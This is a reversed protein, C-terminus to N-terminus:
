VLCACSEARLWRKMHQNAHSESARNGGRGRWTRWGWFGVWRGWKAAAVLRLDLVLVLVRRGAGLVVVSCLSVERRPFVRRDGGDHVAVIVCEGRDVLLDLALPSQEVSGILHPLLGLILLDSGPYVGLHALATPVDLIQFLTHLFQLQPPHALADVVHTQVWISRPCRAPRETGSKAVISIARRGRGGLVGSSTIGLNAGISPPIACCFITLNTAM